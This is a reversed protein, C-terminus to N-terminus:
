VTRLPESGDWDEAARAVMDFFDIVVETEKHIEIAHGFLPVYHFRLEVPGQQAFLIQPFGHKTLRVSEEEPDSVIYAVHNPATGRGVVQSRLIEGPGIEDTHQLEIGIPGWQGFAASHRWVAPAGDHIVQDFPVQDALQFFPGAGVTAVWQEVAAPIDPVEYSVHAIPRHILGSWAASTAQPM